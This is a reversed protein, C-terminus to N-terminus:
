DNSHALHKPQRAATARRWRPGGGLGRWQRHALRVHGDANSPHWRGTVQAAARNATRREDAERKYRTRWTLRVTAM